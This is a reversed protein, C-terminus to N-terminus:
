AKEQPHEAAIHDLLTNILEGVPLVYSCFPCHTGIVQPEDRALALLERGKDETWRLVEVWQDDPLEERGCRDLLDYPTAEVFVEAVDAETWEWDLAGVYSRPYDLDGADVSVDWCGPKDEPSCWINVAGSRADYLGGHNIDHRQGAQLVCQIQAKDLRVGLKRRQLTGPM